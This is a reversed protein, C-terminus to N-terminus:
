SNISNNMVCNNSVEEEHWSGHSAKCPKSIFTKSRLSNLNSLQCCIVLVPIMQYTFLLPTYLFFVSDLNPITLFPM